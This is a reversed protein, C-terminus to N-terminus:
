LTSGPSAIAFSREPRDPSVSGSRSKPMKMVSADIFAFASCIPSPPTLPSSVSCCFIMTRAAIMMSEVLFACPSTARVDAPVAFWTRAAFAAHSSNCTVTPVLSSGIKM